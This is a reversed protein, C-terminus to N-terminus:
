RAAEDLRALVGDVLRQAREAPLLPEAFTFNLSTTEGLTAASLTLSSGVLANSSTMFGLRQLAIDGYRPYFELMGLNNITAAARSSREIANAQRALASDSGSTVAREQQHAYALVDGNATASRLSSSVEAALDWFLSDYHVNHVSMVRAVLNGFTGPALEGRRRLDAPTVCGLNDRRAQDRRRLEESISLLMAAALAGHVSSGRSSAEHALRATRSAPMHADLLGTHRQNPPATAAPEPMTLGRHERRARRKMAWAALMSQRAHIAPPQLAEPAVVAPRPGGGYVTLLEDLVHVGSPGDALAQDFTLLLDAHEEGDLLVARLLPGTSVPIATNLEEVAAARWAGAVWPLIRLPVAADTAVFQASGQPAIRATIAPFHAAVADLADQLRDEDFRGAIRAVFVVNMPAVRDFLWHWREMGTLPRQWSM